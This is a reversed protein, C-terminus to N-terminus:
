TVSSPCVVLGTPLSPKPELTLFLRVHIALTISSLVSFTDPQQRPKACGRLGLPHEMHHTVHREPIPSYMTHSAPTKFTSMLLMWPVIILIWRHANITPIQASIGCRHQDRLISSCSHEKCLPLQPGAHLQSAPLTPPRAPVSVPSKACRHLVLKHHPCSRYDGHFRRWQSIMSSISQNVSPAPSTPPM